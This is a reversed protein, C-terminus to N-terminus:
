PSVSFEEWGCAKLFTNRQELWFKWRSHHFDRKAMLYNCKSDEFDLKEGTYIKHCHSAIEFHRSAFRRFLKDRKLIQRKTMSNGFYPNTWGERCRRKFIYRLIKWTM